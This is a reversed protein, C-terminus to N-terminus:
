RVDCVHNGVESNSGSRVELRTLKKRAAGAAAVAYSPDGHILILSPCGEILLMAGGAPEMAEQAALTEL